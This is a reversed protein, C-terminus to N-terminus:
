PHLSQVVDRALEAFLADRQALTATSDTLFAAVIVARGDPWHVIGIDNYAATRGKLNYSTGCKDALAAGTPLGDRLRHPVTQANMLALLYRSSTASVLQGDWLKRLFDVAGQPTSRNRPDTLYAQYGRQLRALQVPETEDLPPSQGPAMQEFLRGVAAEDLDVRMGEIGHGRLFRTVVAPGGLLRLLADVATNDSESVAAVLLQRVSFRMREGQFHTGISPVASGATLEARTVTVMQELSLTGHDVQDLVAAAVPAKFVSMMPYAQAANVQWTAGSQLDLVAIGLRGPQARQALRELQEQLTSHTASVTAPAAMAPIAICGALTLWTGLMLKLRAYM